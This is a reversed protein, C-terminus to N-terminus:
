RLEVRRERYQEAPWPDGASADAGDVMVVGPDLVRWAGLALVLGCAVAALTRGVRLRDLVLAVLIAVVPACSAGQRAYGFFAITVVLKTALWFLWPATAARRSWAFGVGALCAGLVLVRWTWAWWGEAVVLDVAHRVGGLGVPFATAGFGHAAGTWFRGLKALARSAFALPDAAIWALGRAYGHNVLDVHPLYEFTLTELQRGAAVLMPPYRQLGGEFPPEETLAGRDFGAPADPHNALAFNLPGYLAVFPFGLPEPEGGFAEDLIDIDAATVSRGGRHAVIAEVVRYASGRAFGPLTAIRARAADDWRLMSRSPVVSSEDTNFRHITGWATVHWPILVVLFAVSAIVVRSVTRVGRSRWGSVLWIGLLLAFLAHEVRLLCALAQATSWGVLHLATGRERLRSIGVISALVLALYPVENNISSGLLVLGSSMATLCGAFIAVREGLGRVGLYVLPALGAALLWIALGASSGLWATLYGMGPPRLPLGLEFRQQLPVRGGTSWVLQLSDAYHRWVPADGKYFPTFGAEAGPTAVRFSAHVALALAFILAVRGIAPARPADILEGFLFMMGNSATITTGGTIELAQSYFITGLLSPNSTGDAVATFEGSGDLVIPLSFFTAGVQLTLDPLVPTPGPSASLLIAGTSNPTGRVTLTSQGNSPIQEPDASYQLAPAPLAQFAFVRVDDITWGGFNVGPDTILRFEVQGTTNDLQPAPITMQVWSTDILDTLTPNQWITSGNVNVQAQDYQGSEIGLWRQFQVTVGTQGVANIVPSRLYNEVNPQYRGNFNGIGLDNGWCNSPSFASNPDTDSGDPAGYQWDDQRAVQAHSWGNTGGEMDDFFLETEIGISYVYDDSEPLRATLGGSHRAVFHYSVSQPSLVGPLLAIWENPGAGAVMDRTQQGNGADFVLDVGTFSGLNPQATLTVIRPKLQETTSALPAHTLTGLQVEPFPLNRSIAADSLEAYHPVGNNLNADDDDVIFVERVADPQNTADGVISGIVILDAEVGGATAGLSSQLNTRVRWAFGMWTQGQSHVGEGPSIPYTRTNLADRSLNANNSFGTGIMPTEGRYQALIDGWGESLGDTQSIGGYREDLGHGWEHYIVSKFASNFCYAGSSHQGEVYFNISNQTYFANCSQGINVNATVNSATNLQSTNGLIGRAWKNVDDVHWFTTTQAVDFQSQSGALQLTVPAGGPTAQATAEVEATTVSNVSGRVHQSRNGGFNVRVTVPSTGTAPITFSGNVDTFASGGGDISVLVGAIPLNSPASQANEGDRYYGLVTGTVDMFPGASDNGRDRISSALDRRSHADTSSEGRVHEHGFGCSYVEDRFELVNGNTADVYVKGVKVEAPRADIGIEWALRVATPTSAQVDAWIVVRNQTANAGPQVGLHEYAIAKAVDDGFSPTTNFGAPIPVAQSGFMSIGGAAHVRVDARGGLVELGRYNQDYVLIYVDRIRQGIIEVFQSEGQGLLDAYQTLVINGQRRAEELSDAARQSVHLGPGWIARPTETAKNWVVHWEGPNDLRFQQWASTPSPTPTEQAVGLTPLPSVRRSM